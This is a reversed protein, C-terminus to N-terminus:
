QLKLPAGIDAPEMSEVYAVIADIEALTVEIPYIPSPREPDFPPTVDKVITFAPHPRLAFFGLFRNEWDEFGRMLAFSPTSGITTLRTKENVMHCRGCRAQSIQEGLDADAGRVKVVKKEAQPDAPSFMTQGDVTFAAITKRGTEGTLWKEFRATADKNESGTIELSWIESPGKIVPLGKGQSNLNAHSGEPTGSVTVRTANKLSFRPILFQLIGSKTLGSPAHLVFSRSSADSKSDTMAVFLLAISAFFLTSFWPRSIHM